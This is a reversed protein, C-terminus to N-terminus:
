DHKEQKLAHELVILNSEMIRIYADAKMPGTVAPDLNWVKVGTERAIVEASKAPYQPEAFLATVGFKRITAICTAMDRASPESGPEREIVAVINLNFERAFYPFAEHFTIIDRARISDLRGHMKRRLDDLTTIYSHANARYVEARSPDSRALGEAINGVEKMYLSISVWVHPNDGQQGSGRILEIGDCARIIRLKPQEKLAKEIFVEMGAGNIVFIDAHSLHIMDDTTLQYDHLCGAQPKTLNTLEVGPASGIVNLTAVYMPYFSTVIRLPTVQPAAAHGASCSFGAFALVLFVLPIVSCWPKPRRM